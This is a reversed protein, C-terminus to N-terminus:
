SRRAWIQLVNDTTLRRDIEAHYFGEVVAQAARSVTRYPFSVNGTARELVSHDLLVHMMSIIARRKVLDNKAVRSV